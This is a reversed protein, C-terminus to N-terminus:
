EELLEPNDHINGIVTVEYYDMAEQTSPAVVDILVFAALEPEWQCTDRYEGPCGLPGSEVVDGEFIEISNKDKLGTFQMLVIEDFSLLINGSCYSGIRDFEFVKVNESTFCIDIVDYLKQQQLAWARFKIERM